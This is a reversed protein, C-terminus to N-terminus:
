DSREVELSLMFEMVGDTRKLNTIAMERFLGSHELNTLYKLIREESGARGSVTLASDAYKISHLAVDNPLNYVIAELNGNVQDSQSELGGLAALLNKSIEEKKAINEILNQRYQLDQEYLQINTDIQHRINTIGSSMIQYFAILFVLLGAIVAASPVALLKFRSIPKSQYREPLINLDALTNTTYKQSALKRHILCINVMFRNPDLGEPLKQFVPPLLPIVLRGIEDSMSQYEEPDHYMNGSIFVPLDSPLPDDPNNSDYFNITRNLEDRIMPMKQRWTLAGKPLAITRIPQPIGGKTIVIDFETPQIDVIIATTKEAIRYLLLPKLDMLELKLGVQQLVRLLNDATRHPVAVVFVGSKDAPAPIRQWSLYLEDVPVPLVKKAERRVAEDLMDDPLEPLIIPRSLCYLGSIAILVKGKLSRNQFLQKIKTAVKEEEIVVGNKVLDPELPMDAWEKIRKGRSELLKISNDDIYLAYIKKSM